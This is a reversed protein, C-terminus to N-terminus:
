AVPSILGSLAVARDIDSVFPFGTLLKSLRELALEADERTPEALVLCFSIRIPCTICAHSVITGRHQFSQAMAGQSNSGHHRGCDSAACLGARSLMVKAVDTPPDITVHGKSRGDLREWRAAQSLLDLLGPLTLRRLGGALTTREDSAAVQRAM